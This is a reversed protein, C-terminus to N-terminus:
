RTVVVTLKAVSETVTVQKLSRELTVSGRPEPADDGASAAGVVFGIALLVLGVVGAVLLTGLASGTSRPPCAIARREADDGPPYRGPDSM